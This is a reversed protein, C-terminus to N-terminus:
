ALEGYGQALAEDRMELLLDYADEPLASAGHLLLSQRAEALDPDALAEYLAERLRLLDDDSRGAATVYPLGPTSPGYLLVRLGAVAAPRHRAHLAYTVCDIAAVDARSEAVAALSGAHSGSELTSNFFSRGGALPAVLARLVNYGSQSDTSNYAACRGRLDELKQAPDDARVVIASSYFPGSCGEADYCPTAVVRLEGRLQTMLPYGCTQSFFLEPSRWEAKPDDPWTLAAPADELGEARCARALGAWWAEAAPRVEPLDYM